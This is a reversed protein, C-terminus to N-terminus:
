YIVDCMTLECINDPKCNLVALSLRIYNQATLVKFILIFKKSAHFSFYPRKLILYLFYNFDIKPNAGLTPCCTVELM